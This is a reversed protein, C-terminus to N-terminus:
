IIEGQSVHLVLHYGKMNEITMQMSTMDQTVMPAGSHSDTLIDSLIVAEVMTIEAMNETKNGETLSGQNITLPEGLIKGQHIHVQATNEGPVVQM